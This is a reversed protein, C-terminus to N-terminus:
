QLLEEELIQVVCVICVDYLFPANVQKVMLQHHPKEYIRCLFQRRYESSVGGTPRNKQRNMQFHLFSIFFM